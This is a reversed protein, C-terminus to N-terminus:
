QWFSAPDFLMFELDNFSLEGHIAEDSLTLLRLPSTDVFGPSVDEHQKAETQEYWSKVRRIIQEFHWFNDPYDPSNTTSAALAASRAAIADLYYRVDCAESFRLAESGGSTCMSLKLLVLVAHVLQGKECATHKRISDDPLRLYRNLFSKTAELCSLLLRVKLIKANHSTSRQCPFDQTTTTAAAAAAAATTHNEPVHMYLAVEYLSIFVSDYM